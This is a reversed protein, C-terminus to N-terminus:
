ALPSSRARSTASPSLPGLARTRASTASQAAVRSMTSRTRASSPPMLTRTLAPAIRRSPRMTVWDTSSQVRVTATLRLPVKWVQRAASGSMIRFRQPRMMLTMEGAPRWPLGPWVAYEADLAPTSPIVRLRARSHPRNLTVTLASDGPRM